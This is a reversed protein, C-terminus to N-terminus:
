WSDICKCVDIPFLIEDMNECSWFSETFVDPCYFLESDHILNVTKCNNLLTFLPNPLTKGAAIEETATPVSVDKNNEM